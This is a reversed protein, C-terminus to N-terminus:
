SAHGRWDCICKGDGAPPAGCVRCTLRYHIAGAQKCSACDDPVYEGVSDPLSTYIDNLEDLTKM